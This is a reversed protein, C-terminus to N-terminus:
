NAETPPPPAALLNNDQNKIEFFHTAIKAVLLGNPTEITRPCRVLTVFSEFEHPKTAADERSRNLPWTHATGHFHVSWAKGNHDVVETRPDDFDLSTQIGQQKVADAYSQHHEKEYEAYQRQQEERLASTMLNWSDALDSEVTASNLAAYRKLFEKAVYLVEPRTPGSQERLRGVFTAQGSADVLFALPRYVALYLCYFAMALGLGALFIAAASFRRHFHLAELLDSFIEVPPADRNPPPASM